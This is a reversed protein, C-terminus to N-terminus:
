RKEKPAPLLASTGRQAISGLLDDFKKQDLLAHIRENLQKVLLSIMRLSSWREVTYPLVLSDEDVGHGRTTRGPKGNVEDDQAEDEGDVSFEKWLYEGDPRKARYSRLYRLNLTDDSSERKGNWRSAGRIIIIAEWTLTANEKLWRVAQEKVRNLDKSKFTALPRHHSTPDPIEVMFEGTETSCRVSLKTGDECAIEDFKRWGKAM